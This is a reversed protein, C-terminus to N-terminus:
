FCSDTIDDYWKGDELVSDIFGPDIVLFTNTLLGSGRIGEKLYQTYIDSPTIDEAKEYEQLGQLIEQFAKRLITGDQYETENSIVNDTALSTTPAFATNPATFPVLKWKM